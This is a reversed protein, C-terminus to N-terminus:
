STSAWGMATVPVFVMLPPSGARPNLSPSAKVNLTLTSLLPGSGLPASSFPFMVILGVDPLLAGM